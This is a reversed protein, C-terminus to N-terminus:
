NLPTANAVQLFRDEDGELLLKQTLMVDPTPVHGDRTSICFRCTPRDTGPVLLEVNGHRGRNIRYLGGKQSTLHFRNHQKFEAKQEESLHALLLKEAKEEALKVSASVPPVPMPDVGRTNQAAVVPPPLAAILNRAEERARHIIEQRELIERATQRQAEVVYDNTWQNWTSNQYRTTIVNSWQTWTSTSNANTSVIYPDAGYYRNDATTYQPLYNSVMQYKYEYTAM